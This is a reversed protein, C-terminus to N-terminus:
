DDDNEKEQTSLSKALDAFTEILSAQAQIKCQDLESLVSGGFVADVTNERFSKLLMQFFGDFFLTRMADEGDPGLNRELMERHILM